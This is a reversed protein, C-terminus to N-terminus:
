ACSGASCLNRSLTKETSSLRGTAYRTDLKVFSVDERILLAIGLHQTPSRQVTEFFAGPFM